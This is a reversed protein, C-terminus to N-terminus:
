QFMVKPDCDILMPKDCSVCHRRHSRKRRGNTRTEEVRFNEITWQESGDVPNPQADGCWPCCVNVADAILQARRYPESKVRM